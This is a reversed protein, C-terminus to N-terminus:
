LREGLGFDAHYRFHFTGEEEVLFPIRIHFAINTSSGGVCVDQARCALAM